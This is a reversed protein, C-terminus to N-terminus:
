AGGEAALPTFVRQSLEKDLMYLLQPADQSMKTQALIKSVNDEEEVQETVYWQLFIETANDREDRALYVLDNILSTVKQEHALTEKVSALPSDWQVPPAEIALL